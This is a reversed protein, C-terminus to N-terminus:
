YRLHENVQSGHFAEHCGASWCTGQPLRTTHDSDGIFIRGGVHQEEFHCKFCLTANRDILMKANVSGHPSHCTMCGQRVGEHEFVFPGRQANHCEFCTENVSLFGMGGGRLKQHLATGGGTIARGKHPDHCDTCSMKNELVPHHHPLQFKSRVELHCQFCTEPSKGPNIISGRGGGAEVHKSGPGHCSECGMEKANEGRATLRAHTATKFDRVIESHCTDCAESGVFEAGPISPPAIITRDTACSLLVLTLAATGGVVWWLRERKGTVLGTLRSVLRVNPTM